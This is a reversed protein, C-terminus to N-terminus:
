GLAGSDISRPKRFYAGLSVVEDSGFARIMQGIMSSVPQPINQRRLRSTPPVGGNSAVLNRYPLGRRAAVDLSTELHCSATMTTCDQTRLRMATGPSITRRSRTQGAPSQRVVNKSQERPSRPCRSQLRVQRRWAAGVAAVLLTQFAPEIIPVALPFVTPAPDLPCGLRTHRDCNGKSRKGPM